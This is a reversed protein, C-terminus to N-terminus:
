VSVTATKVSHHCHQIATVSVEHGAFGTVTDPEKCFLSASDQPLGGIPSTQTLECPM